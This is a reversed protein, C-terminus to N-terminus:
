RQAKDARARDVLVMDMFESATIKVASLGGTNFFLCNGDTM